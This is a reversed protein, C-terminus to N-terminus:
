KENTSHLVPFFPLINSKYYDSKGIEVANYVYFQDFSDSGEHYLKDVAALPILCHKWIQINPEMVVINPKKHYEDKDFIRFRKLLTPEWLYPANYVECKLYQKLFSRSYEFHPSIMAADNHQTVSRFGNVSKYYIM